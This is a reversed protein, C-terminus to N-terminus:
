PKILLKNRILDWIIFISKKIINDCKVYLNVCYIAIICYINFISIIIVIDYKIYIIIM